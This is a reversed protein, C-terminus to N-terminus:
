LVVVAAGFVVGALTLLATGVNSSTSTRVASSKKSPSTSTVLPQTTAGPLLSTASPIGTASSFGEALCSAQAATSNGQGNGNIQAIGGFNCASLQRGQLNYYNDLAINLIQLPDCMSFNGYTGVTGNGSVSTCAANSLGCVTGIATGVLSLDTDSNYTSVCSAASVACSCVTNDPTPPLNQSVPWTDNTAPCAVPESITATYASMTATPPSATSFQGQLNTFDQNPTFSSGDAAISGLGYGNSQMQYEYIIAGSWVDSMNSSYVTPLDSFSRASGAVLCGDESFFAPVGLSALEVTRQSYGSTVFDSVGCWEYINIGWYDISSATDECALFYPLAVRSNPSDTATYGILQSYNHAATYAKM